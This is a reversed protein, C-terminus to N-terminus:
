IEHPLKGIVEVGNKGVIVTDEIRVGFEGELYIGPEITIVMNEELVTGDQTSISPTEHINLGLSHGTSHIFKDKYGYGSIVSRAINDIECTKVGSKTGKISKKYAEFVIDFIEKQKKDNDEIMTRSTDSCYGNYKAGWDMLIINGLKKNGMPAHPLSSNKDTAVITEFSEESAGNNRMLYGLEYAIEWDTFRKEQKERIVLEEFSKHAINTANRIKEIENPSKIMREKELFNEIALEWKENKSKSGELKKYYSIPLNGEIAIKKLSEEKFVKKLDSISKLEKVEILSTEDALEKDMATTYIVPNEKFLCIASSTPYYNSIYKINNFQTLLIGDFNKKVM